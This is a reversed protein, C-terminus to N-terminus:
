LLFFVWEKEHCQGLEFAMEPQCQSRRAVLVFLGCLQPCIKTRQFLPVSIPQRTHLAKCRFCGRWEGCHRHSWMVKSFFLYCTTIQYKDSILQIIELNLYSFIGQGIKKKWWLVLSFGSIDLEHSGSTYEVCSRSSVDQFGLSLSLAETKLFKQERGRCTCYDQCLQGLNGGKLPIFRPTPPHFIGYFM